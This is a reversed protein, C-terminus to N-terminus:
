AYYQANGHANNYDAYYKVTFTNVGDPLVTAPVYTGRVDATTGTSATANLLGAVFTGANAAPHGNKVEAELSLFKYPLGFLNVATVSITTAATATYAISDIYRFAKKGAVPTTGNLTLVEATAVQLYDRGRVTVTGTSAGSAVISVGRGFRGMQAETNTFTTALTTITAAATMDQATLIAVGTATPAGLEATIGAQGQLNAFATMNNVRLRAGQPFYSPMRKAM